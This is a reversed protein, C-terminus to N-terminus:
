ALLRRHCAAGPARERASSSDSYYDVSAPIAETLSSLLGMFEADLEPV